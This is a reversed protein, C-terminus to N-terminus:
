LSHEQQHPSKGRREHHQFDGLHPLRRSFDKLELKGDDGDEVSDGEGTGFQSKRNSSSTGKNASSECLNQTAEQSWWEPIGKPYKEKQWELLKNCLWSQSFKVHTQPSITGARVQHLVRESLWFRNSIGAEKMCWEIFRERRQYVDEIRTMGQYKTWSIVLFENATRRRLRDSDAQKKLLFLVQNEQTNMRTTMSELQARIADFEAQLELKEMMEM